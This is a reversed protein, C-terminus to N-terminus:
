YEFPYSINYIISKNMRNKQLNPSVWVEKNGIVYPNIKTFVGNNGLTKQQEKTYVNYNVATNKFIVSKPQSSLVETTGCKNCTFILSCIEDVEAKQAAPIKVTFALHNETFLNGICWVVNGGVDLVAFKPLTGQYVSVGQAIECVLVGSDVIEQSLLDFVETLTDGQSATYFGDQYQYKTATPNLMEWSSDSTGFGVTYIKLGAFSKKLENAKKITAAIETKAMEGGNKGYSNNTKGVALFIIDKNQGISDKLLVEAGCLGSYGHAIGSNSGHHSFLDKGLSLSKSYLGSVYQYKNYSNKLIKPNDTFGCLNEYANIKQHNGPNPYEGYVVMAVRIGSHPVVVTDVFSNLTKQLLQWKTEGLFDKHLPSNGGIDLDMEDSVDLVLIVDRNQKQNFDGYHVDIKIEYEDNSLKEIEKDFVINEHHQAINKSWAGMNTFGLILTAVMIICFIINKCFKLNKGM